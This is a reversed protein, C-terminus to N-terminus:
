RNQQDDGGDDDDDGSNGEEVRHAEILAKLRQPEV